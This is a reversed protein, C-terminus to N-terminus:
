NNHRQGMRELKEELEIIQHKVSSLEESLRDRQQFKQDAITVEATVREDEGYWRLSSTIKSAGDYLLRLNKILCSPM